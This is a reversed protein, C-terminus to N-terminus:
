YTNEHVPLQIRQVASYINFRQNRLFGILTIGFAAATSVALSSPAGVAAIVPIGAMAAKQVLEFSARGSLLLITRSLDINNMAFAAGILKDLANHRGVDERLLLLDGSTNFLTAAHLGGTASFVEQPGNLKAPLSNIIAVPIPADRWPQLRLKGATHIAEISAKGCVGCSSSTYFNREQKALQPVATEHLSVVTINGSNESYGAADYDINSIDSPAKIIGETLIFGAALEADNGPTRMTVALNHLCRAQAPGYCLRIELPEEVALCDILSEQIGDKIRIVPLHVAYKMSM